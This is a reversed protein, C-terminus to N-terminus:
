FFLGDSDEVRRDTPDLGFDCLLVKELRELVPPTFNDRCRLEQVLFRIAGSQLPVFELFCVHKISDRVGVSEMSM